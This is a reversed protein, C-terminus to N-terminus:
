TVWRAQEFYAATASALEVPTQAVAEIYQNVTVSGSASSGQNGTDAIGRGARWDSAEEATLVAEGKHLYVLYNDYPVYDLGTKAGPIGEFEFNLPITIEGIGGELADTIKQGFNSVQAEIEPYAETMGQLFGEWTDIAAQKAETSKDLSDIAAEYAENMSQLEAEFEGNLLTMTDALESESETVAQNIDTFDQIIKQGEETTAGGAKEVAEVIAQAYAAGEAGYSQFADALSGLGYEKLAQLNASYSNNFEVQSQMATMMDEVSTRVTVSAEQFPKFFNAVKNYMGDYAEAYREFLNQADSVYQETVTSFEATAEATATATASASDAALQEVMVLENYREETVGLARILTNYQNHMDTTWLALPVDNLVAIQANIAEIQAAAEESSETMGDIGYMAADFGYEVGDALWNITDAWLTKFGTVVPEFIEGWRATAANLKEQAATAEIIDKNIIKYAEGAEGLAQATVELMYAQKEAATTCAQLGANFEDVSMHCGELMQVYAGTAVNLSFTENAAEYFTEPQLAESFRGVVGAALDAWKAADEASEALLSIQQAAEVAQDTEGIISYLTNYTESAVTASHGAASFAADLKGMELRYERTNEVLAVIATSIAVIASVVAAGAKTVKAFADTINKGAEKGGEGSKKAGAEIDSYAKKMASASDMGAEKYSRALEEAESKVEDTTKGAKKAIEALKSKTAEGSKTFGDGIKKASEGTKEAEDATETLADIADRNEVVVTGFLEFFDM